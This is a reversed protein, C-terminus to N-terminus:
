SLYLNYPDTHLTLPTDTAKNLNTHGFFRRDYFIELGEWSRVLRSHKPVNQVPIKQAYLLPIMYLLMSSPLRPCTHLLEVPQCHVTSLVGTDVCHAGLGAWGLGDAWGLGAWGLGAWGLRCNHAIHLHATGPSPPPPPPTVRAAPCM